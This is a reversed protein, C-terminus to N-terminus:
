RAYRGVDMWGVASADMNAHLFRNFFWAYCIRDPEVRAVGHHILQSCLLVASGPAYAVEVGLNRMVLTAPEHTGFTLLLDYWTVEGSNDRHFPSERNSLVQLRSFIAPWITLAEAVLPECRAAAGLAEQAAAFLDPHAISLIASCLAGEERM